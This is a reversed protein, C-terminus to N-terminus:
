RLNIIFTNVEKQSSLRFIKVSKHTYKLDSILKLYQIKNYKYSACVYRIISEKGLIRELCEQNNNWLENKFFLNRLARILTRKFLIIFPLDLWIILNVSRTINKVAQLYVGDIIWEHQKLQEDIKLIFNEDTEREWNKLWYLNDLEIYPISYQKSIKKSLFSKGSGPGGIIWIKKDELRNFYKNM